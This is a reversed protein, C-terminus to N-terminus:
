LAGKARAGLAKVARRVVAASADDHPWERHLDCGRRHRASNTSPAGCTSCTPLTGLLAVLAEELERLRPTVTAELDTQQQRLDLVLKETKALRAEAADLRAEAAAVRLARM